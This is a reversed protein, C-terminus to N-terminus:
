ELTSRRDSAHMLPINRRASDSVGRLACERPLGAATVWRADMGRTRRQNQSMPRM